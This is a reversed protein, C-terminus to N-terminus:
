AAELAEKKTTAARLAKGKFSLAALTDDSEFHM